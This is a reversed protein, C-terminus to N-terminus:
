PALRGSLLEVLFSPSGYGGARTVVLPGSGDSARSWAVGPAITGGVLVPSAGLLAAATDGGLVVLTGVGTHRLLSRATRALSEAAAAAADPAVPWVDPPPSAVAGPRGAALAAAVGSLPEGTLAVPVGTAALAVLQGRAVPHLSGCVVLVPPVLAVPSRTPAAVALAPAAVALAAAAAGISGATGAFLVPSATVWARAIAALDDSTAADCVAFPAGAGELWHTLDDIGALDAVAPAGAARLLEAPRSSRVPTRADAGAPGDGVPRGHELVVGGVCTRGVAPFAAVVLVRGAAPHRAVLEHAWNGRLTSDLKHARHGAALSDLAGARRAAEIPDLHRTGADVVAARAAQGREPPPRPGVPVPGLGADACAGATELAGTRDDAVVLLEIV